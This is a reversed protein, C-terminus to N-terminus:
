ESHANLHYITGWSNIFFDTVWVIYGNNRRYSYIINGDGIDTKTAPAGWSMLLDQKSSGVWYERAKEIESQNHQQLTSSCAFTVTLLLLIIKTKM